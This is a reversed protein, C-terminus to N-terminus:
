LDPLILNEPESEPVLVVTLVGKRFLEEARGACKESYMCRTMGTKWVGGERYSIEFAYRKERFIGRSFVTEKRCLSLPEVKRARASKKRFSFYQATMYSDAGFLILLGFLLFTARPDYDSVFAAVIIAVSIATLFVSLGLLLFLNRRLRRSYASKKLTEAMKEAETGAAKKDKEPYEEAKQKKGQRYVCTEGAGNKGNSEKEEKGKRKM